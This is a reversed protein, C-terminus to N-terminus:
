PVNRTKWEDQGVDGWDVAVLRLSENFPDLKMLAKYRYSKEKNTSDILTLLASPARRYTGLVLRYQESAPLQPSRYATDLVIREIEVTGVPILLYGDKSQTTDAEKRLREGPAVVVTQAGMRGMDQLSSQSLVRVTLLGKSELRRWSSLAAPTFRRAKLDTTEIQASLPSMVEVSGDPIVMTNLQEVIGTAIAERLQADRTARPFSCQMSVIAAWALLLIVRIRDALRNSSARSKCCYSPMTADKRIPFCYLAAWSDLGPDVPQILNM